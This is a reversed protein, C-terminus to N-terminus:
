NNEAGDDIWKEILALSANDVNRHGDAALFTYLRSSSANGPTVYAPVLANYENGPRLDPNQSGNHCQACNYDVFIPTIDNSFSIEQDPPLIVEDDDAPFEDYYCSFFLLTISSVLVIKLLKKM